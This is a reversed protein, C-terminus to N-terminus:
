TKYNLLNLWKWWDKFEYKSGDSTTYYQVSATLPEWHKRQPERLRPLPQYLFPPQREELLGSWVWSQHWYWSPYLRYSKYEILMCNIEWSLHVWDFYTCVELFFFFFVEDMFYVIAYQKLSVMFSLTFPLQTFTYTKAMESVRYKNVALRVLMVYSDPLPEKTSGDQHSMNGGLVVQSGSSVTVTM